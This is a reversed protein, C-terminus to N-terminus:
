KKKKAPAHSAAGAPLPGPKWTENFNNPYPYWISRYGKIDLAVEVVIVTPRRVLMWSLVTIRQAVACPKRMPCSEVIPWLTMSSSQTMPLRDSIPM